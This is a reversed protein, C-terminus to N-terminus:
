PATIQVGNSLAVNGPAGSSGIGFQCYLKTGSPLGSLNVPPFAFGGSGNTPIAAFGVAAGINPILTGGVFPLDVRSGSVLFYGVSSATANSVAVKVANMPGDISLVPAGNTGTLSKGLDAFAGANTLGFEESATWNALWSTGPRFAGRFRESSFFGDNPAFGVSTLADNAPRPDLFTVPDLLNSGVLTTPARTIGVIPSNVPEKVNNNAVNFVGLADANTYNKSDNNGYFVSDTIECLNGNTQATYFAAPNAPANVTSYSNYATTWCATWPLTGNFGYGNGGDGDINDFRVVEDGCDMFICNRYQVRAGDRWTTLGDGDTPQGIITLNYFVTSTVPQWDSNEAGDTECANDGVGSGQSAQLSHGQVILGFQIKGRYGQDIDLSDDGVNWIAIYKLNVTGGWVEIGDDVNNMIEVHHIDTARGIGGLSLGNLEKTLAVVKGGFRISLFSISGSDDNDNGGGYKNFTANTLGEMDGQNSANPTPSNTLIGDESIYASGMLTLNGWENAAERWTGNDNSSTMVVPEDQTGQVHIMSGRTVALSGGGGATNVVRVGKEITLTAANEVYIQGVLNIPSMAKTWTTSSTINASINTQAGAAFAFGAVALVAAASSKSLIRM